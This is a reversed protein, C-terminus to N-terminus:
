NAAVGQHIHLRGPPACMKGALSSLKGSAAMSAAATGDNHQRLFDKLFQATHKKPDRTNDGYEATYWFWVEPNAKQITKVSKILDDKPSQGGNRSM